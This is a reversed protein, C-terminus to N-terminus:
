RKGARAPNLHLMVEEDSQHNKLIYQMIDLNEWVILIEMTGM